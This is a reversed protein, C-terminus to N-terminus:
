CCLSSLLFSSTSSLVFLPLRERRWRRELLLEKRGKNKKTFKRGGPALSVFSLNCLRGDHSGEWRDIFSRIWGVSFSLVDFVSASPFNMFSDFDSRIARLSSILNGISKKKTGKISESRQSTDRPVTFINIFIDLSLYSTIITARTYIHQNRGRGSKEL